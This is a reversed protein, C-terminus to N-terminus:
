DEKQQVSNFNDIEKDKQDDLLPKIKILDSPSKIKEEIDLEIKLTDNGNEILLFKIRKWKKGRRGMILEKQSNEFFHCKYNM